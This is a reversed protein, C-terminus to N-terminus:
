RQKERGEGWSDELWTICIKEIGTTWPRQACPKLPLGRSGASRSVGFPAQGRGQRNECRGASPPGPGAGRRPAGAAPARGAGPRQQWFSKPLQGQQMADGRVDGLHSCSELGGIQRGWTTKPSPVHKQPTVTFPPKPHRPSTLALNARTSLHEVLLESAM